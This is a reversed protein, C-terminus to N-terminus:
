GPSCSRKWFQGSETIFKPKNLLWKLKDVFVNVCRQGFCHDLGKHKHEGWTNRTGKQIMWTQGTRWRCSFPGSSQLPTAWPHLVGGEVSGAVSVVAISTSMFRLLSSLVMLRTEWCDSALVLSTCLCNIACLMGSGSPFVGSGKAGLLPLPLFYLGYVFGLLSLYVLICSCSCMGHQCLALFCVSFTM